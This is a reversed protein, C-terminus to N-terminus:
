ISGTPSLHRATLSQLEHLSGVTPRMDNQVVKVVEILTSKNTTQLRNHLQSLLSIQCSYRSCVYDDNNSM